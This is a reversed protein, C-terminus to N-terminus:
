WVEAFFEGAEIHGVAHVRDDRLLIFVGRQLADHDSAVKACGRKGILSGLLYYSGRIKQIYESKVVESTITGACIKVEHENIRDVTVGISRIAELLMDIDSVNPLNDITVPEDTLIAGAIIGLAANKAGGITVEGHM